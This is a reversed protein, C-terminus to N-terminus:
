HIKAAHLTFQSRRFDILGDRRMRSLEQSLASRDVSLYDALQQRNFPIEFTSTGCVQAQYSLYALLKERMTRRSLHDIKRSLMVNKQAFIYMLNHILRTHFACTQGCLTLVRNMQLFAIQSDEEAIVSVTIAPESLCAYSEGFLEGNKAEGLISRNGWFDDRVILVKGSIVLGVTYVHDGEQWIMQQRTYQRVVPSLCHFLSEIDSLSMGAFLRSQSVRQALERM